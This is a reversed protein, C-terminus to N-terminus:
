VEQVAEGWKVRSDASKTAQKTGRVLSFPLNSLICQTHALNFEEKAISRSLVIITEVRATAGKGWRRGKKRSARTVRLLKENWSLPFHVHVDHFEEAVEEGEV